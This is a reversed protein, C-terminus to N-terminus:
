KRKNREKIGQAIKSFRKELLFTENALEILADKEEQTLFGGDETTGGWTYSDVLWSMEFGVKSFLDEGLELTEVFEKQMREDFVM